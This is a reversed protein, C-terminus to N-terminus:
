KLFWSFRVNIQSLLERMKFLEDVLQHKENQLATENLMLIQENGEKSTRLQHQNNCLHTKLKLIESLSLLMIGESEIKDLIDKIEDPVILDHQKLELEQKENLKEILSKDLEKTLKIQDRLKQSNANSLIETSVSREDSSESASDAAKELNARLENIQKEYDSRM